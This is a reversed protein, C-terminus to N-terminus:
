QPPVGGQPLVAERQDLATVLFVRHAANASNCAWQWWSTVANGAPELSQAVQRLWQRLRTASAVSGGLELRPLEGVLQVTKLVMNLEAM